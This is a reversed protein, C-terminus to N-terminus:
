KRTLEMIEETTFKGKVIGRINQFRSTGEKKRIIVNDGKVIFEVETHPLLGYEERIHQPITVQGKQTVHM